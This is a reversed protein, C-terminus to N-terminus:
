LESFYSIDNTQRQHGRFGTVAIRSAEGIASEFKRQHFQIEAANNASWPKSPMALMRAAAGSAIGESWRRMWDPIEGIDHTPRLAGYPRLMDSHDEDPAPILRVIGFDPMTWRSPRTSSPTSEDASRSRVDNISAFPLPDGDWYMEFIGVLDGYYPTDIEYEAVDKFVHMAPMRERWVMSRDCLEGVAHFLSQVILPEPAEVVWPRVEGVLQELPIRM